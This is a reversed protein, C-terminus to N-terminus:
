RGIVYRPDVHLAAIEEVSAKKLDRLISIAEDAGVNGGVLIVGSDLSIGYSGSSVNQFVPRGLATGVTPCIGFDGGCFLAHQGTSFDITYYKRNSLGADPRVYSLSIQIAGAYTDFANPLKVSRLRYGDLPSGPSTAPMYSPGHYAANLATQERDAQLKQAGAIVLVVIVGAAAIVALWRWRILRVTAAPLAWLMPVGVLPWLSLPAGDFMSPPALGGLGELAFLGIQLAALVLAFVLTFRRGGTRRRMGIGVATVALVCGALLGVGAGLIITGLGAWQASSAAAEQQGIFAAIVSTGLRIALGAVLAISVVLLSRRRSIPRVPTETPSEIRTLPHGLREHHIALRLFGELRLM